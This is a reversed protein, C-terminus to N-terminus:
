SERRPQIVRLRLRTPRNYLYVGYLTLWLILVILVIGVLYGFISDSGRVLILYLIALAAGIRHEAVIHIADQDNDQLLVDSAVAIARGEQRLLANQSRGVIEYPVPPGVLRSADLDQTIRHRAIRADSERASAGTLKLEFRALFEADERAEGRTSGAMYVVGAGKKVAAAIDGGTQRRLDSSSGFCLAAIDANALDFDDIGLRVVDYGNSKLTRVASASVDGLAGDTPLDVVILPGACAASALAVCAIGAAIRWGRWDM